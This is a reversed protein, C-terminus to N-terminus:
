FGFLCSLRRTEESVFGKQAAWQRSPGTASKKINASIPRQENTGTMDYKGAVGSPLSGAAVQHCRLLLKHIRM